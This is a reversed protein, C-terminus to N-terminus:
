FLVLSAVRGFAILFITRVKKSKDKKRLSDIEGKLIETYETLDEM